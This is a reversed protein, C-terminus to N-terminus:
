LFIPFLSYPLSLSCCLSPLILDQFFYRIHDRMRNKLEIPITHESVYLHTVSTEPLSNCFNIWGSPTVSYNEGINVCWIRKEKLLSTFHVLQPDFIASSINQIYMAQCVSNKRFSEILADFVAANIDTHLHAKIKFVVTDPHDSHAIPFSLSASTLL